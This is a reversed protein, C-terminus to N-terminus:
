HIRKERYKIPSMGMIKTFMRSFYYQDEIGLETAIEKIRLTTFILYQCAKQIKLHNFYEIPSYGTKRKFLSSFHSASLNVSAAINELTLFSDTRSAMFDIAVNAFDQINKTDSQHTNYIFSSLFHYLCMNAHMLHDNSYGRELQSYMEEFLVISNKSNSLFGKNGGSQKVFMDVLADGSVGKFHMWYITWPNSIDAGYTHQTKRPVLIFEGPEILLKAKNIKVQGIGEKCYILINQEAGNIRERYHFKAKPYYGIDTIYLNGIITNDVCHKTIIKRPIVIAKQGEFGERKKIALKEM